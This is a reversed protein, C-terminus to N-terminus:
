RPLDVQVSRMQALDIMLGGDAVAKGAINHGGARVSVLLDHNRAFTVASIVDAAGACRVILAPRKNVMGNFVRRTSDYGADGPLIVEGHLRTRLQTVAAEAVVVRGDNVTTVELDSM